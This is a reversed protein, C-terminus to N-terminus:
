GGKQILYYYEEGDEEVSHEITSQEILQHGLHTCFKPIDWRTSPDTAWLELQEGPALKRIARHLLMIPEPCRLGRTDLSQHITMILSYVKFISELKDYRVTPLM